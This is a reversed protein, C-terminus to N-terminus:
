NLRALSQAAIAQLTGDLLIGQGTCTRGWWAGYDTDLVPQDQERLRLALWPSVLWWEYIDVGDPESGCAIRAADLWGGPSEDVADDPSAMIPLPIGRELAFDLCRQADWDSPDPYPSSVHDWDVGEVAGSQLLAMILSTQNAWVEVDLYRAASRNIAIEHREAATPTRFQADHSERVLDAQLEYMRGSPFCQVSEHLLTM